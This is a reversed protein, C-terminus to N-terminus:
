ISNLNANRIINRLDTQHSPNSTLGSQPNKNGDIANNNLHVIHPNIFQSVNLNSCSEKDINKNMLYMERIRREISEGNMLAPLALDTIEILILKYQSQNHAMRAQILQFGAQEDKVPDCTLNFCETLTITLAARNFDDTIIALIQSLNPKSLNM